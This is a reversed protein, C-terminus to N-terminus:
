DSLVLLADVAMVGRGEPFVMLPNIDLAEIRDSWDVALNGVAILVDILAELDATQGGRFGRLIRSTRTQEIMQRATQRNLPPIGLSRDGLVEVMVGGMGFIVAPGFQPDILLGVIAEAVAGAAMRQCLVGDLRARPDYGVAAAILRDYSRRIEEEDSLGLAIVGAETKHLIDPSMVKLAVPTGIERSAAVAEEASDCLLEPTCTVGYASLVQKSRFETLGGAGGELLTRVERVAAPGAAGAAAGPLPPSGATQFRGYALAHDIAKLGERSGQLLPV